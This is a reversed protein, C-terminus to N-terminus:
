MGRFIFFNRLLGIFLPSFSTSSLVSAVFQESFSFVTYFGELNAVSFDTSIAPTPTDPVKWAQLKQLLPHTFGASSSSAQAYICWELKAVFLISFCPAPFDLFATIKIYCYATFPGTFLVNTLIPFLYHIIGLAPWNPPQLWLYCPKLQTYQGTEWDRWFLPLERM